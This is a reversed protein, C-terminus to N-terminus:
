QYDVINLCGKKVKKIFKIRNGSFIHYINVWYVSQREAKAILSCECLNRIAAIVTPKSCQLLESVKDIKIVIRDKDTGIHNM